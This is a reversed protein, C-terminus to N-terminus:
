GTAGNGDDQGDTVLLHQLQASSCRCALTNDTTTHSSKSKHEGRIFASEFRIM